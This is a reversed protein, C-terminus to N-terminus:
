MRVTAPIATGGHKKYAYPCRDCKASKGSVEGARRQFGYYRGGFHLDSQQRLCEATFAELLAERVVAIRPSTVELELHKFGACSNTM